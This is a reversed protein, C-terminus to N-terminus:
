SSQTAKGLTMGYLLILFSVIALTYFVWEHPMGVFFSGIGNVLGYICWACGVLLINVRKPNDPELKYWTVTFIAAIVMSMPFILGTAIVRFGRTLVNEPTVTVILGATVCVMIIFLLLSTKERLVSGKPFLLISAGYYLVSLSLIVLITGLISFATATMPDEFYRYAVGPVQSLGFFFFGTGWILPTGRKEKWYLRMFYFALLFKVSISVITSIWRLIEVMSIRIM